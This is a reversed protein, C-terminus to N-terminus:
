KGSFEKNWIKEKDNELIKIVEDFAKDFEERTVKKDDLNQIHIHFDYHIKPAEKEAFASPAAVIGLVMMSALFFGIVKKM